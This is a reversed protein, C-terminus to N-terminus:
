PLLFPSVPGGIWQVPLKLSGSPVAVKSAVPTGVGYGFGAARVRPSRRRASGRPRRACPNWALVREAPPAAVRAEVVEVDARLMGVSLSRRPAGSERGNLSPLADASGEGKGKSGYHASVDNVTSPVRQGGM